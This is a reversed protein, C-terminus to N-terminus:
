EKSSSSKLASASVYVVGTLTVHVVCLTLEVLCFMNFAVNDVNISKGGQLHVELASISAYVAGTLMAYVVCAVLCPFMNLTVDGVNISKM